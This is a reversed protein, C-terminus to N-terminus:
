ICCEYTSFRIQADDPLGGCHPENGPARVELWDATFLGTVRLGHCTLTNCLRWLNFFLRHATTGIMNNDTFIYTYSIIINSSNKYVATQSDIIYQTKKDTQSIYQGVTLIHHTKNDTIHQMRNNTQRDTIHQM